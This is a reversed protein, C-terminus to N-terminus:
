PNVTLDVSRTIHAGNTEDVFRLEAEYSGADLQDLREPTDSGYRVEVRVDIRAGAALAGSEETGGAFADIEVDLWRVDEEVSLVIDEGCSNRVQYVKADPSFSTSMATGALVYAETPTVELCAEDSNSDCGILMTTLLGAFMFRSFSIM